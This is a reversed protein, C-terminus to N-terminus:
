EAPPPPVREGGAAARAAAQEAAQEAAEADLQARIAEMELRAMEKRVAASPPEVSAHQSADGTAYEGSLWGLISRSRPVNQTVSAAPDIQTVGPIEAEADERLTAGCSPCQVPDGPTEASCWPCRKAAEDTM